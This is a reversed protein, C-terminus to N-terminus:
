GLAAIMSKAGVTVMSACCRCGSLVLCSLRDLVVYVGWHVRHLYIYMILHVTRLLPRIMLLMIQGCFISMDPREPRFLAAAAIAALVSAGHASQSHCVVSLAM